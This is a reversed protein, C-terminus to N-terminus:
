TEINIKKQSFSYGAFRMALIWWWYKWPELSDVHLSCPSHIPGWIWLQFQVEWLDWNVNERRACIRWTLFKQLRSLGLFTFITPPHTPLWVSSWSIVRAVVPQCFRIVSPRVIKNTKLAKYFHDLLSQAKLFSFHSFNQSTVLTVPLRSSLSPGFVRVSGAKDSVM